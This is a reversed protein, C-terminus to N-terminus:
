APGAHNKCVYLRTCIICSRGLWWGAEHRYLYRPLHGAPALVDFIYDDYSLWRGASRWGVRDGFQREIDGDATPETGVAGLSEWITLQASFGFRGGSSRGWIDDIRSLAGCPFTRLDDDSLYDATGQARAQRMIQDTLLDAEKWAGSTLLASLQALSVDLENGQAVPTFASGASGKKLEGLWGALDPIGAALM